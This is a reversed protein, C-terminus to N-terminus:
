TEEASSIGELLSPYVIFPDLKVSYCEQYNKITKNNVTLNNM